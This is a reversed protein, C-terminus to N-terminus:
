VAVSFNVKEELERLVLMAMDRVGVPDDVEKVQLQSQLLGSLKGESPWIVIEVPVQL